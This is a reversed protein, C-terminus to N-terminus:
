FLFQLSVLDEISIENIEVYKLLTWIILLTGSKKKSSSIKTPSFFNDYFSFIQKEDKFKPIKIKLKLSKDVSLLFNRHSKQLVENIFARFNQCYNGNFSNEMETSITKASMNYQNRILNVILTIIKISKKINLTNFCIIINFTKRTTKYAFRKNKANM